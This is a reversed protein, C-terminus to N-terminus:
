ESIGKDFTRSYQLHVSETVMSLKMMREWKIYYEERECTHEKRKYKEARRGLM